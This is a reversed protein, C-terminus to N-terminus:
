PFLITALGAFLRVHYLLDLALVSSTPWMSVCVPASLASSILLMASRSKQKTHTDTVQTKIKAHRPAISVRLKLCGHIADDIGACFLVHYSTQRPEAVILGPIPDVVPEMKKFACTPEVQDATARRSGKVLQLTGPCTSRSARM